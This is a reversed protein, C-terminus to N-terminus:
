PWHWGINGKWLPLIIFHHIVDSFFLGIGIGTIWRGPKPFRKIFFYGILILFLGWFLHHIKLILPYHYKEHAEAASIGSILRSIITILEFVITSGIGIVWTKKRFYQNMGIRM